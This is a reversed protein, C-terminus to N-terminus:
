HGIAPAESVPATRLAIDRLHLAVLVAVVLVLASILFALSFGSVLGGVAVHRANPPMGNFAAAGQSLSGLNVM